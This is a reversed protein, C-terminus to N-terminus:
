QSYVHTEIFQVAIVTRIYRADDAGRAAIIEARIRDLEKGFEDGLTVEPLEPATATM